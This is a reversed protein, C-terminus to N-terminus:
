VIINMSFSPGYHLLQKCKKEDWLYPKRFMICWLLFLFFLAFSLSFCVYLVQSDFTLNSFPHSNRIGIKANKKRGFFNFLLLWATGAYNRKTISICIVNSWSLLFFSIQTKIWLGFSVSTSLYRNCRIFCGLFTKKKTNADSFLWLRHWTATIEASFGHGVTWSAVTAVILVHFFDAM